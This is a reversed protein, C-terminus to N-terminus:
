KLPIVLRASYLGEPTTGTVLSARDEYILHLRRRLNQLGIGGAKVQRSSQGDKKTETKPQGNDAPSVTNLIEATLVGGGTTVTISISAGAAATNCHKFANEVLPILLLPAVPDKGDEGANLRCDLRLSSPMRLAMLKVYNEIFSLERSLEVERRDDYLVYRLMGSLEHVADQAQTPSVAILAYISNLTNFLFHPNLQSKLHKLEESRRASELQEERRSIRIWTDSLKLAMSLAITLVVMVFDRSFFKLWHLLGQSTHTTTTVTVKLGKAAQRIRWAEDWYPQMWVSILWFLTLAVATVVLNYGILRWAFWKREFSRGIIICYNLYFVGIFILTKCYVGYRLTPVSRFPKGTAGLIEPLVFLMGICILHTLFTVMKQRRTAPQSPHLIDYMTM